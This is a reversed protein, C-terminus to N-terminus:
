NSLTYRGEACTCQPHWTLPGGPLVGVGKLEHTDGCKCAQAHLAPEKRPAEKLLAAVCLLRDHGECLSPM